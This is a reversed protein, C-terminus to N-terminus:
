PAGASESEEASEAAAPDSVEVMVENRRLFWLAFPSNYRAFVPEGRLEYGVSDLAALLHAEEKRYRTENWSGSYRRVAMHKPPIERIRVAPDTPVPLTELTYHGPMVFGVVYRGESDKEQRVPATMAIKEGAAEQRVPATMAIKENQTNEGSIYKFLVRFATNGVDDFDGEVIVEAVLYAPYGRVEFDAYEQLVKYEPEEVAMAIGPSLLGVFLGFSLARLWPKM